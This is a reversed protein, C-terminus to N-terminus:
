KGTIKSFFNKIAILPMESFGNSGYHKYLWNSINRLFTPDKEKEVKIAGIKVLIDTLRQAAADTEGKMQDYKKILAKAEKVAEDLEEADKKLLLKRNVKEAQALREEMVRIDRGATFQPYKKSSFVNRIDDHAIEEM